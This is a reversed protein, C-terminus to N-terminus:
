VYTYYLGLKNECITILGHNGVYVGSKLARNPYNTLDSILLKLKL